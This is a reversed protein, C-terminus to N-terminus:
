DLSNQLCFLFFNYGIIYSHRLYVSLYQLSILVPRSRLGWVSLHLLTQQVYPIYVTYIYQTLVNNTTEQLKKNEIKILANVNHNLNLAVLLSSYYTMLKNNYKYAVTCCYKYIKKKKKFHSLASRM